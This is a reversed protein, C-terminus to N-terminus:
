GAERVDSMEAYALLLFSAALLLPPPSFDPIRRCLSAAIASQNLSVIWLPTASRMGGCELCIAKPFRVGM